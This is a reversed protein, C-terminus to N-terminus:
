WSGGAGGGGFNGGGFGGFGGGGGGGFGGGGGGFGGGWFFMGSSGMTMGRGGRGGRSILLVILIIAIAIILGWSKSGNDTKDYDQSNVEGKALGILVDIGKNLGGYYDNKKFDPLIEKQVIEEATVDPIAGELGYGVAIFIKRPTTPKILIVIGNDFKKQGIEWKHGIQTAFEAPEDGYLSDIIVVAIQNSTANSFADLKTELEQVEEPSLFQTSRSLNNVLKPPNPRAPIGEIDTANAFLSSALFFLVFVLIDFISCPIIFKSGSRQYRRNSITFYSKRAIESRTHM